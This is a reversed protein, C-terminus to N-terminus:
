EVPNGTVEVVPSKDASSVETSTEEQTPGAKVVAAILTKVSQRYEKLANIVLKMDDRFLKLQGAPDDGQCNFSNTDNNVQVQMERVATNKNEISSVLDDYNEVLRKSPVRKQDYFEMVRVTIKEFVLIMNESHRVMNKSRNQIVKQRSQCVRLKNADLKKKLLERREASKTGDRATILGKEEIRNKVPAQNQVVKNLGERKVAQSNEATAQDGIALSQSNVFLAITLVLPIILLIKKM